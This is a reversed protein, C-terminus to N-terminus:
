QSYIPREGYHTRNRVILLLNCSAKVNSNSVLKGEEEKRVFFDTTETVEFKALNAQCDQLFDEKLKMVKKKDKIDLRTKLIWFERVDAALAQGLGFYTKVSQLQEQKISEMLQGNIIIGEV